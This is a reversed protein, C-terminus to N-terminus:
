ILNIQEAWELIEREPLLGSLQPMGLINGRCERWAGHYDSGGSFILRYKKCLASLEAKQEPTHISYWAELGHPKAEKVLDEMMEYVPQNYGGPHAIIAKGGMSKIAFCVTEASPLLREMNFFFPSKINSFERRMFSKYNNCSDPDTYRAQNEPYRNLELWFAIRTDKCKEGTLPHIASRFNKRVAAEDFTFGQKRYTEIMQEEQLARRRENSIYATSLFNGAAIPHIGYGLIEILQGKYQATFECGPLIKGSFLRRIKPDKLDQYAAMSNHDTISILSLGCTQCKQLLEATSDAGDSATTHLHLDIMM